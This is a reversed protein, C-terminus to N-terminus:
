SKFFIELIKYMNSCEINHTITKNEKEHISATNFIGRKQVDRKDNQNNDSIM